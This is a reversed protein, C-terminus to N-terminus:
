RAAHTKVMVRRRKSAPEEVEEAEEHAAAVARVAAKRQRSALRKRGAARCPAAGPAVSAAALAAAAACAMLTDRAGAVLSKVCQDMALVSAAALDGRQRLHRIHADLAQKTQQSLEEVAAMDGQLMLAQAQAAAVLFMPPLVHATRSLLLWLEVNQQCLALRQASAVVAALWSISSATAAAAAVSASAATEDPASSALQAEEAATAALGSLLLAAPTNQASVRICDAQTDNCASPASDVEQQQGGAIAIGDALSVVNSTSPKATALATAQRWAELSVTISAVPSPPAHSGLQPEVIVDAPLGDPFHRALIEDLDSSYSTAPSDAELELAGAEVATYRPGPSQFNASMNSDFLQELVRGEGEGIEAPTGRVKVASTTGALWKDYWSPFGTPSTFTPSSADMYLNGTDIATKGDEVPSMLM